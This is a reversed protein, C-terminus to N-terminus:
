ALTYLDSSTKVFVVKGKYQTVNLEFIIRDTCEKLFQSKVGFQSDAVRKVKILYVSSDVGVPRTNTFQVQRASVMFVERKRVSFYTEIFPDTIEKGSSTIRVKRLSAEHEKLTFTLLNLVNCRYYLPIEVIIKDKYVLMGAVLKYWDQLLGILLFALAEIRRANKFFWPEPRLPDRTDKRVRYRSSFGYYLLQEVLVPHSQM